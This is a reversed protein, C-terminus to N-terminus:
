QDWLSHPTLMPDNSVLLRMSGAMLITAPDTSALLPDDEVSERVTTTEIPEM